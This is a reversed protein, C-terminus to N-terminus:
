ASACAILSLSVPVGTSASRTRATRVARGSAQSATPPDVPTSKVPETVAPECITDSVSANVMGAICIIDGAEVAEVPVRQLGNFSLLKTLRFNEVTKGDLGMAKVTMNVKARGSAVRGTLCRGLYPDKDLLTALMTFPADPNVNPAPVHALVLDMLPHLNERPADLSLAAWGNRGSAYIVPFDLQADNADLAVFLDFVVNLVEDVRAEPRDVKNIVVIPRLGQALAKMLVFKTQPM